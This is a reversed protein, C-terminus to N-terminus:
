IEANLHHCSPPRDTSSCLMLFVYLGIALICLLVTRTAFLAPSFAITDAGFCGCQFDLGRWWGQLAVILFTITLVACGLSSASMMFGSLMGLGLLIELPPLSRALVDAVTVSVVEYSEIALSFQGPHLLKSAGAILFILGVVMRVSFMLRVLSKSIM